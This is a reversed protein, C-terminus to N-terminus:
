CFDLTDTVGCKHDIGLVGVWTLRYAGSAWVSFGALGMQLFELTKLAHKQQNNGYLYCKIKSLIQPICKDVLPLPRHLFDRNVDSYRRVFLGNLVLQAFKALNGLAAAPFDDLFVM